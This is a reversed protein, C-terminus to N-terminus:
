QNEKVTYNKYGLRQEHTSWEGSALRYVIIEEPLQPNYPSADHRVVMAEKVLMERNSGPLGRGRKHILIITGVPLLDSCRVERLEAELEKIAGEHHQIQSQIERESRM